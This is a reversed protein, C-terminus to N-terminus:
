PASTTTGGPHSTGHIGGAGGACDTTATKTDTAGAIRRLLAPDSTNTTATEATVMWSGDAVYSIPAGGVGCVLTTSVRIAKTRDQASAFRTGQIRVGDVTCEFTETPDVGLDVEHEGREHPRVAGKCTIGAEALRAKVGALDSPATGGGGSCATAILLATAALMTAGAM